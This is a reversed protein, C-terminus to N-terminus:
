TWLKRFRTVRYFRVQLKEQRIKFEKADPESAEKRLVESLLKSEQLLWAKFERWRSM